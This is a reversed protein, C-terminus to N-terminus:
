FVEKNIIITSPVPSQLQYTNAQVTATTRYCDEKKINNNYLTSVSRLLGWRLLRTVLNLHKEKEFKIIKHKKNFLFRGKPEAIVFGIEFVGINIIKNTKLLTERNDSSPFRNSILLKSVIAPLSYEINMYSTYLFLLNKSVNLPHTESRLVTIM